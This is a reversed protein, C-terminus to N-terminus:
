TLTFLKEQLVEFLIIWIEVQALHLVDQVMVDFLHLQVKHLFFIVFKTLEHLNTLSSVLGDKQSTMSLPRITLKSVM